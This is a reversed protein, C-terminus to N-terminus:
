EIVQWENKSEPFICRKEGKINEYVSSGNVTNYYAEEGTEEDVFLVQGTGHRGKDISIIEIELGNYMCPVYEGNIFACSRRDGIYKLKTGVPFPAELPPNTNKM